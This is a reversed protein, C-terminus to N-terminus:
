QINNSFDFVPKGDKWEVKMRMAHRNPDCLPDGEISEYTRAHYVCIDEGAESQTFCNHGPGYIGKSADTALVPLREKDWAEPDLLDKGEEASLMGM